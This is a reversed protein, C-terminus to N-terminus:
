TDSALPTPQPVSRAAHAQAAELARCWADVAPSVPRRQRLVWPLGGLAERLAGRLRPDAAIERRARATANLASRLPRRLWATWLRNRLLLRRRAADDRAASPFHHVVIRDAYALAWGREALDLALLEEEGGIFFRPPYGGAQLFADRRAACAGALFGLLRPGPLGTSPLPSSAMLACAPDDRLGTGVLVRGSLVAVQPYADLLREAHSLAGDTWVTDDDSFAVYPTAALRAGHNRASAGVNGPLAIVRVDSFTEAVRAASGDRSGNDVVIVSPREALALAREVTQLLEGVRNHSLIVLSIRAVASM